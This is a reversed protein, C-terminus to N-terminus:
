FNYRLNVGFHRGAETYGDYNGNNINGRANSWIAYKKDLLNYIGASINFQKTVNYYATLDVVAYGPLPEVDKPLDKAKKEAAFKLKTNLGWVDMPDQYGLGVFGTIPDIRGRPQGYVDKGKAYSFGADFTMGKALGIVDLNFKGEFEIGYTYSKGEENILQCPTTGNFDKGCESMDLSILDRYKNYFITTTQKGLYGESSWTLDVGTSVEPKLNPNPKSPWHGYSQGNTEGYGPLRTAHQYNLSVLNAENVLYDLRLGYGFANRSYNFLSPAKQSSINETGPKVKIHTLHVSPTLSLGSKGFTIKDALHVKAQWQKQKPFYARIRNNVSQQTATRTTAVSQLQSHQLKLGYNLEHLIDEGLSKNFDTKLTVMSSKFYDTSHTEKYQPQTPTPPTVPPTAGNRQRPPNLKETHAYISTSESKMKQLSLHWSMSDFLGVNKHIEHQFAIADRQNKQINEYNHYSVVGSRNTFTDINNELYANRKLDYHQLMMTFKHTNNPAFVFKSNLSNSYATSPNSKTRQKGRVDLGSKNDFENFWRRNYSVLASSNEGLLTAGTVGLSYMDSDGLYGARLQGGARQNPQIYDMPDKTQFRVSGALGESNPGKNIEVRKLDATDFYQRGHRTAHGFNLSQNIDMGDLEMTVRNAGTGFIDGSGGMGRVEIDGLQALGLNTVKVGPTSNLLAKIDKPNEKELKQQNILTTTNTIEAVIIPELAVTTNSAIAPLCCVQAVFIALTKRKFSM